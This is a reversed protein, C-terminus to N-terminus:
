PLVTVHVVEYYFTGLIKKGVKFDATKGIGPPTAKLGTYQMNNKGKFEAKVYNSADNIPEVTIGDYGQTGETVTEGVRITFYPDEQQWASVVSVSSIAIIAIIILSLIKLKM